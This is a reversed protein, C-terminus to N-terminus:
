WENVNHGRARRENRAAVFYPAISSSPLPTWGSPNRPIAGGLRRRSPDATARPRSGGQGAALRGKPLVKCGPHKERLYVRLGPHRDLDAV